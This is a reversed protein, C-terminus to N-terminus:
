AQAVAGTSPDYRFAGGEWLSRTALEVAVMHHVGLEVTSRNQERSRVCSLWDLRLLDQWDTTECDYEQPDVDDVYPSQPKLVVKADNGLFLDAEHGRILTEMGRDNCTSGAVVMTHGSGEADDGYEVTLFVQDHNEMARDVYHGGAATVRTPAGLDLAYILPTMQHVLLDGIIGTSWTRYRRWRHFVETDWEHEGEPGCWARWDTNDPGVAEDIGYLWEGNRSNRCYSTQSLTPKGIAGSRILERAKEHNTKMMYQTGVQCLQPGSDVQRQMWLADALHRTMPKEVYVDKGAQMCAVAQHAHWHEPSAILVAHVDDRAALERWDATATVEVGAQRERAKALKGELRPGCVDALGVVDLKERGDDRFRLFADLHGGGMGGTGIIGVRIPEDPALENARPGPQVARDQALAARGKTSSCGLAAAGAAAASLELFRRRAPDFRRPARHSTM